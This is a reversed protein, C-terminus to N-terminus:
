IPPLITYCSYYEIATDMAETILAYAEIQNDDPNQDRHLIYTVESNTLCENDTDDNDSTTDTDETTTDTDETTTDTDEPIVSESSATDNINTDNILSTDGIQGTTADTDIPWNSDPVQNLVRTTLQSLEKKLVLWL